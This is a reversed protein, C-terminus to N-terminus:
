DDTKKKNRGLIFPILKNEYLVTIMWAFVISIAFSFFTYLYQWRVDGYMNPLSFESYPFNWQKLKVAIYQHWIYFNFSISSLFVMVRNSFIKRYWRMAYASSLIFLLFVLAIWTRNIGQWRQLNENGLVFALDNMAFYIVILSTISVLTFLPSFYQYKVKKNFIVYIYAGAMGIAFVDFFAPLQNVFMSPDSAKNVFLIRFLIGILSMIFFSAAPFRKFARSLMPFIIYFQVLIAVTWLVVNLRTWLYTDPWFTQTFTLHSFLDKIMFL